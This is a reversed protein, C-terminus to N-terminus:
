CPKPEELLYGIVELRGYCHVAGDDKSAAADMVWLLTFDHDICAVRLTGKDAYVVICNGPGGICTISVLYDYNPLNATLAKWAKEPSM